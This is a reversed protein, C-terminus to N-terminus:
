RDEQLLKVITFSKANASMVVHCRTRSSALKRSRNGNYLYLNVCCPYFSTILSGLLELDSRRIRSPVATTGWLEHSLAPHSPELDGRLHGSISQRIKDRFIRSVSLSYRQKGRELTEVHTWQLRYLILSMLSTQVSNVCPLIRYCMSYKLSM